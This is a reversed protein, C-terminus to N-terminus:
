PLAQEMWDPRKRGAVPHRSHGALNRMGHGPILFLACVPVAAFSSAQPEELCVATNEESALRRGERGQGCDGDNGTNRESFQLNIYM